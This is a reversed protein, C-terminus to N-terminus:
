ITSKKSDPPKQRGPALIEGNQREGDPGQPWIRESRQNRSDSPKQRGPGLIEGNQRMRPVRRGSASLDNIEMMQRSRAGQPSSKRM